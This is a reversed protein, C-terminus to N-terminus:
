GMGCAFNIVGSHNTLKEQLLDYEFGGSNGGINSKACWFFDITTGM